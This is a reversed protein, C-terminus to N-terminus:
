QGVEYALSTNVSRGRVWQGDEYGSVLGMIRLRYQIDVVCGQM